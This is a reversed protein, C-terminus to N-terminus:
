AEDKVNKESGRLFLRPFKALGKSGKTMQDPKHAPDSEPQPEEDREPPLLLSIPVDKIKQLCDKLAEKQSDGFGFYKKDAEQFILNPVAVFKHEPRGLIGEYVDIFLNGERRFLKYKHVRALIEDENIISM